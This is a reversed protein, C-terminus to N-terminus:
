YGLHAPAIFRRACPTVLIVTEGIREIDAKTTAIKILAINTPAAVEDRGTRAHGNAGTAGPALLMRKADGTERTRRDVGM